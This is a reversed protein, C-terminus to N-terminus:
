RIAHRNQIHKRIGEKLQKLSKPEPPAIPFLVAHIDASSHLGARRLTVQGDVEDWELISGPNLGLLKRINQPISIQGQSTLRSRALAM